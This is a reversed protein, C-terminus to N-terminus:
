ARTSAMKAGSAFVVTEAEGTPSSSDLPATSVAVWVPRGLSSLVSVAQLGDGGDRSHFRLARVGPLILCWGSCSSGERVEKAVLSPLLLMIAELSSCPKAGARPWVDEAM